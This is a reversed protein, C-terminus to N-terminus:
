HNVQFDWDDMYQRYNNVNVTQNQLDQILQEMCTYYNEMRSSNIVLWACSEITAVEAAIIPENYFLDAYMEQDLTAPVTGDAKFRQSQAEGSSIFAAFEQCLRMKETGDECNPNVGVCVMSSLATMQYTETNITFKPLQAVSLKDGLADRLQQYDSSKAFVADSTGDILNDPSLESFSVNYHNMLSMMKTVAAYGYENDFQFGDFEDTGNKGFVTCGTGLFFCGAASSDLLPLSVRGESLMDELYNVDRDNFVENNYYLCWTDQSVPFGYYENDYSYTIANLHFDNFHTDLPLSVHNLPALANCNILSQMNRSDYLYVNAGSYANWVMDAYTDEVVGTQNDWIFEYEPYKAAFQDEMSVLWENSIDSYDFNMRVSIYITPKAEERKDMRQVFFSIAFIIALAIAIFRLFGNKKPPIYSPTIKSIVNPDLPMGCGICFQGSQNRPLGCKPCLTSVPKKPPTPAAKPTSAPMAAGCSTCFMASDAMPNGCRPCDKM